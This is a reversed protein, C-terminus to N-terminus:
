KKIKEMRTKRQIMRRQLHFGVMAVAVISVALSGDIFRITASRM